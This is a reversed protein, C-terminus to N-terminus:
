FELIKYYSPVLAREQMLLSAESVNIKRICNLRTNSACGGAIIGYSLYPYILAYYKQKLM